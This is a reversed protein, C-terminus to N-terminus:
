YQSYTAQFAASKVSWAEFSVKNLPHPQAPCMGGPLLMIAGYVLWRTPFSLMAPRKARRHRRSVTCVDAFAVFDEVAEWLTCSLAFMPMALLAMTKHWATVVRQKLRRFFSPMPAMWAAFDFPESQADYFLAGKM